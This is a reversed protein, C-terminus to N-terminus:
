LDQIKVLIASLILLFRNEAVPNFKRARCLITTLSLNKVNESSGVSEDAEDKKTKRKGEYDSRNGCEVQM